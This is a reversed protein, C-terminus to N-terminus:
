PKKRIGVFLTTIKGKIGKLPNGAAKRAFNGLRGLLGASLRVPFIVTMFVVRFPFSIIKWAYHLLLGLFAAVRAVVRFFWRVMSYSHRGLLRSYLFVGLFLGIFVYLRLQGYNARLLAFFSVATLVMWFVIDGAFTGVKKLRLTDSIARYITHCLGATM